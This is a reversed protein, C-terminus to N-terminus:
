PNIQITHFSHNGFVHNSWFDNVFELIQNDIIATQIHKLNSTSHADSSFPYIVNQVLM